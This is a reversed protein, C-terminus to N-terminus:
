SKIYEKGDLSPLTEQIFTLTKQYIGEGEQWNESTIMAAAKASEILTALAPGDFVTESGERRVIIKLTEERAEPTLKELYANVATAVVLDRNDFRYGDINM